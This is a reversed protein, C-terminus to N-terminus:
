VEVGPGRLLPGPYGVLKWTGPDAYFSSAVTDRLLVYIGRRLSISSSRLGALMSSVDERSAGIWGDWQGILMARTPAAGLMGFLDKIEKQLHPPLAAISKDATSVVEVITRGRAVADTPLMGDLVADALKTLMVQAQPDLHVAKDLVPRAGKDTLYSAFWGGVGIFAITAAGTKLLSRRSRVLAAESPM